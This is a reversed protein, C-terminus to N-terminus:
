TAGAVDFLKRAAALSQAGLATLRFYRRRTGEKVEAESGWRAAILGKDREMRYLTTHITGLPIIRTGDTLEKVADIIEAGYQDGNRALALLILLETSLVDHKWTFKCIYTHLPILTADFGRTNSTFTCSPSM